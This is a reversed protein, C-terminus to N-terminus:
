LINVGVGNETVKKGGKEDELVKLIARARQLRESEFEVDIIPIDVDKKTKKLNRRSERMERMERVSRVEGREEEEEEVKNVREEGNGSGNGGGAGKKLRESTQKVIYTAM